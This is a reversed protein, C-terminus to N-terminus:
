RNERRKRRELSSIVHDSKSRKEEQESLIVPDSSAPRRHPTTLFLHGEGNFAACM